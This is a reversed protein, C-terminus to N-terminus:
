HVEVMDMALTSLGEETELLNKVSAHISFRGIAYLTSVYFLSDAKEQPTMDQEMIGEMDSMFAQLCSEESSMDWKRLRHVEGVMLALADDPTLGNPYNQALNSLIRKFKNKEEVKLQDSM